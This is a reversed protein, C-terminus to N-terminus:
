SFYSFQLVTAMHIHNFINGHKTKRIYIHNKEKCNNSFSEIKSGLSHISIFLIRFIAEPNLDILVKMSLLIETIPTSLAKPPLNSVSM